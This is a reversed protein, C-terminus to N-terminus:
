NKIMRKSIHMGYESPNFNFDIELRSLLTTNNKICALVYKLTYPNREITLKCLEYTQNKVYYLLYPNREIAMRCLEDNQNNIYKFINSNIKIALKCFDYNHLYEFDVLSIKKNLYFKNTKFKNKEIYVL